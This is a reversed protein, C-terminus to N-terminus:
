LFQMITIMSKKVYLESLNRIAILYNKFDDLYVPINKNEM